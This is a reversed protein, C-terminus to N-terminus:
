LFRFAFFFGFVFFSWRSFLLGALLAAAPNPGATQTSSMM